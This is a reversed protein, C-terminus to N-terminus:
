IIKRNINIREILLITMKQDFFRINPWFNLITSYQKLYELFNKSSKELINLYYSKKFGFRTLNKDIKVVPRSWLCVQFEKSYEQFVSPNKEFLWKQKLTCKSRPKWSSFLKHQFIFLKSFERHTTGRPLVGWYFYSIM